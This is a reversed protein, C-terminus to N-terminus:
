GQLEELCEDVFLDFSDYMPTHCSLLEISDNYNNCLRMREEQKKTLKRSDNKWLWFFAPLDDETPRKGFRLYYMKVIEKADTSQRSKRKKIYEDISMIRKAPNGGYVSNSECKGTVLSNAGIIVNDGIETNMLITANIGIFVNNGIKVRGVGGVIEGTMRKWVSWSYDHNLITVGKAIRVEDGIELMWPFQVDILTQNPSYIYGGGGIIAGKSRLYSFYSESTAKYGLIYKRIINKIM